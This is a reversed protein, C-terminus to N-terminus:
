DYDPIKLGLILDRNATWIGNEKKLRVIGSGGRNKENQKIEETLTPDSEFM